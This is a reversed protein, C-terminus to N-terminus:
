TMIGDRQDQSKQRRRGWKFFGTIVKSGSYGLIIKLMLQNAVKTGDTVKIGGQQTVVYRRTRPILGLVDTSNQGGGANTLKWFTNSNESHLSWKWINVHKISM